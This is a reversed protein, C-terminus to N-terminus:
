IVHFKRRWKSDKGTPQLCRGAVFHEMKLLLNCNFSAFLALEKTRPMWATFLRTVREVLGLALLCLKWSSIHFNKDISWLLLILPGRAVVLRAFQWCLLTVTWVRRTYNIRQSFIAGLSQNISKILSGSGNAGVINIYESARGERKCLRDSPRLRNTCRALGLLYIINVAISLKLPRLFSCINLAFNLYRYIVRHPGLLV